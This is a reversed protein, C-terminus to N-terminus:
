NEPKPELLKFSLRVEGTIPVICSLPLVERQLAASSSQEGTKYILAGGNAFSPKPWVDLLADTFHLSTYKIDSM